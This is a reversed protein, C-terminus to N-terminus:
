REAHAKETQYVSLALSASLYVSPHVSFHVPPRKPLYIAVDVSLFVLMNDPSLCVYMIFLSLRVSPSGTPRISPLISSQVSLPISSFDDGDRKDHVNGHTISGVVLTNINM